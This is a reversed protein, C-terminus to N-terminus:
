RRILVRDHYLYIEHWELCDPPTAPLPLFSHSPFELTDQDGSTAAIHTRTEDGLQEIRSVLHSNKIKVDIPVHEGREAAIRRESLDLAVQAIRLVYVPRESAAIRHDM